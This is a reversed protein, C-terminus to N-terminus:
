LEELKKWEEHLKKEKKAWKKAWKEKKEMEKKIQAADGLCGLCAPVTGAAVSIGYARYRERLRQWEKYSATAKGAAFDANLKALELKSPAPAPTAPATTNTSAM